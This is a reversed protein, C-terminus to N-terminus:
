FSTALLIGLCGFDSNKPAPSAPVLARQATKLGTPVPRLHEDAAEFLKLILDFASYLNVSDGLNVTIKQNLNRSSLVHGDAQLIQSLRQQHHQQDANM